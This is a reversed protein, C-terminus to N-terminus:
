RSAPSKPVFRINPLASQSAAHSLSSYAEPVAKRMLLIDKRVNEMLSVAANLQELYDKRDYEVNLSTSNRVEEIGKTIVLLCENIEAGMTLTTELFDRLNIKSVPSVDAPGPTHVDEGPGRTDMSDRWDKEKPLPRSKFGLAATRGELDAIRGELHRIVDAASRRM